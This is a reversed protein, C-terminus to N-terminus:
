PPIFISAVSPQQVVATYAIAAPGFLLAAAFLIPRWSRRVERPADVALFRVVDYPSLSKGRYLLNHAGAVLRSLYFLEDSGRGRAATQLRALDSTLVRYESVFDRIGSEGLSSLGTSQARALVAAFATWRPSGTAVIAHRERAAGTEHRASVGHARAEREASYLAMLRAADSTGEVGVLAAAFRAALQEAIANRRTPDLESRRQAYRDLVDYEADALATHLVPTAVPAPAQRRSAVVAPRKVLEERVVITGAVIDGLRKGSKNFLISAIGVGYTFVPQMDVIRVLNRVASAAFTVSYGGDLVVRLRMVRKGPTQGDALGEFLVYYGWLVVFQGIVFFALVWVDSSQATFGFGRRAAGLIALLLGLTFLAAFGIFYDIIAAVARSGVGAVTYSLVVLEPTEVSVTQAMAAPQATM